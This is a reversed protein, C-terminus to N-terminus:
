YSIVETICTLPIHDGFSVLKGDQVATINNSYNSKIFEDYCYTLKHNVLVIEFIKDFNVMNAGSVHQGNNVLRVKSGTKLRDFDIKPKESEKKLKQYEEYDSLSIVVVNEIKM